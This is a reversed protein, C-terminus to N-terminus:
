GDILSLSPKKALLFFVGGVFSLAALILFASRYSGTTDYMYGAFPAAVLLLINLPVTSIGLIKGFSRRGFYDGRIATTLPSRGGFGIGFLVAFAYLLPLTNAFTLIVVSFAQISTFVFIAIRIPIRDGVYGGVVPFVMAVFTYVSVVWATTQIDFGNDSMFLGLHAMIAIIVMSTLGHGISILWFAVTKLAQATTLDQTDQQVEIQSVEKGSDQSNRSTEVELPMLGDPLLNYEEPRNRIVKYMPVAVLFSFIGLALATVDWGLRDKDPNIAWAIAPVLILAGLRSFTNSWGMAKARNRIFWNNLLTTVPVWGCLSHGLSMIVFALYFMWLHKVQWFFLFGIALVVLGIFVMRKPGVRDTLYGEIPGMIGGEIRTFAFAMSLQTRSWGFHAELAVSWVTMAHFLPASSLM